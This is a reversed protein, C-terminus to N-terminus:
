PSAMAKGTCAAAVDVTNDGTMTASQYLAELCVAKGNRKATLHGEIFIQFPM